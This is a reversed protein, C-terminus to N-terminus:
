WVCMAALGPAGHAGGVGRHQARHMDLSCAKNAELMSEDGELGMWGGCPGVTNWVQTSTPEQEVWMGLVLVSGM